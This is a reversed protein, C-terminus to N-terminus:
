RQPFFDSQAHINEAAFGPIEIIFGELLASAIAQPNLRAGTYNNIRFFPYVERQVKEATLFFKL